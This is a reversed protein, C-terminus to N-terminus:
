YSTKVAPPPSAPVLVQEGDEKVGFTRFSNDDVVARELLLRYFLVDHGKGDERPRTEVVMRQPAEGLVLGDKRGTEIYKQLLEPATDPINVINAQQRAGMGGVGTNLGTQQAIFALALVAAVAWGVLGSRAGGSWGTNHLRVPQSDFRLEPMDVHDACVAAHSVVRELRAMDRRAAALDSWISQDAAACDRFALWDADSARADLLRTILLDRDVPCPNPNSPHM